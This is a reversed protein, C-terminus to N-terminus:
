IITAFLKVYFFINTAKHWEVFSPGTLLVLSCINGTRQYFRGLARSTPLLPSSGRQRSSKHRPKLTNELILREKSIYDHPLFTQVINHRIIM